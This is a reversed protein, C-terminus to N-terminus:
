VRPTSRAEPRANTNPSGAHRSQRPTLRNGSAPSPVQDWEPAAAPPIHGINWVVPVATVDGRNNELISRVHEAAKRDQVAAPALWAAPYGGYGAWTAAIFQYAGSATSSLSRATYDDGSEIVRITTLAADLPAPTADCPVGSGGGHAFLLPISLLMAMLASAFGAVVATAKMVSHGVRCVGSSVRGGTPPTSTFATLRHM